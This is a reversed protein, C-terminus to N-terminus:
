GSQHAVVVPQARDRPGFEVRVRGIHTRTTAARPLPLRRDSCSTSGNEVLEIAESDEGGVPRILRLRNGLMPDDDLLTRRIVVGAGTRV